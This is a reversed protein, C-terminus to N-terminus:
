HVRTVTQIIQQTRMWDHCRVVAEVIGPREPLAFLIERQEGFALRKDTILPWFVLLLPEKKGLLAGDWSPTVIRQDPWIRPLLVPWLLQSRPSFPSEALFM